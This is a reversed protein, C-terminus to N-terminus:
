RGNSIDKRPGTSPIESPTQMAGQSAADTNPRLVIKAGPWQQRCAAVFRQIQFFEQADSKDTAVPKGADNTSTPIEVSPSSAPSPPAHQSEAAIASATRKRERDLARRREAVPDTGDRALEATRAAGDTAFSPADPSLESM